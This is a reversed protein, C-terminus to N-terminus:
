EAAFMGPRSFDDKPYLNREVAKLFSLQTDVAAKRSSHAEFLVTRYALLFLHRHDAVEIPGTEISNFLEHDHKGCLGTFTTANNRGV